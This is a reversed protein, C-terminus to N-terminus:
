GGSRAPPGNAGAGAPLEGAGETPQPDGGDGGDGGNGGNGGNGGDGGNGGNGGNGPDQGEDEPTYRDGGVGNGPEGTTTSPATTVPARTTTDPAPRAPTPTSVPRPAPAPVSRGTDGRIIARAPLPEEPTGALAADMYEKWIQGPLGSGYIIAGSVNKIPLRADSGMWVATSMSPTYGVMWADSNDTRNLGQTGTKSAVPRNGDLARKAAGAVGELAFTVDNAVDAPIAQEGPDGNKEVLVTGASDTVRAVFHPDRELGGAAFTAFGHAQDIPRLEYEGIGIAGGTFGDRSLVPKGDIEPNGPADWQQPLDMARIATDRVNDPGVEYALGYFTTNLSRVIAETLTCAGCQANSSNTV